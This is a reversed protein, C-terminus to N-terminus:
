ILKSFETVLREFAPSSHLEKHCTHCLAIGNSVDWLLKCRYAKRLSTINNKMIIKSFRLVHHVQLNKNTKCIMCSRDHAKLVLTMWVRYEPLKRIKRKM